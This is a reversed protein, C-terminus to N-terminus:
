ATGGWVLELVRRAAKGDGLAQRGQHHMRAGRDGRLLELTSAALSEAEFGGVDGMPRGIGLAALREAAAADGLSRTYTLAPTGLAALEYLSLGFGCVALRATGMADLLGDRTPAHLVRGLERCAALSHEPAAPGVVLLTELGFPSLDPLASAIRATLGGADAGGLVVLVRDRRGPYPPAPRGQQLPEVLCWDAGQRVRPHAVPEAHLVPLVTWTARDVADLRDLVLSPLGRAEAAALWPELDGPGDLILARAAACPDDGPGLPRVAIGRLERAAHGLAERDGAIWLTPSLGMWRAERALTVSRLVHGLGSRRGGMAVLTLGNGGSM